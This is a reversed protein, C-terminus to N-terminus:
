SLASQCGRHSRLRRQNSMRFSSYCRLLIPEQNRLSDSCDLISGFVLLVNNAGAMFSNEVHIMLEQPSPQIYRNLFGRAQLQCITVTSVIDPQDSLTGFLSRSMSSQQDGMSSQMALVTKTEPNVMNQIASVLAQLDNSILGPTATTEPLDANSENIPRHQPKQSATMPLLLGSDQVFVNSKSKSAGEM